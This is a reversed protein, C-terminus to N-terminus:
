QDADSYHPQPLLLVVRGRFGHKGRLDRLIEDEYALSTVVVTDVPQSQLHGPGVVPLRSGPMFLGQKEPAIDVVYEIENPSLRALGLTSVGRGGAGWCAVRRGQGREALVIERLALFFETAGQAVTEHVPKEFAVLMYEGGARSTSERLELGHRHLLHLMSSQSFYNVYDAFFDCYRHQRLAFSVDAVEIFGVGGPKLFKAIAGAFAQLDEVLCIVQRSVFADFSAPPLAVAPTLYDHVVTVGRGRAQAVEPAAPEVATVTAGHRTLAAAFYGDGCGGELVHAGGLGCREILEAALADQYARMKPSHVASKDYTRYYDPPLPSRAQHIFGCDACRLVRLDIRADTALESAPILREIAAPAGPLDLYTSVRTSM